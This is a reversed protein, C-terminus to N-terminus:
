EPIVGSTVITTSGLPQRRRGRAVWALAIVVGVAGIALGLFADWPVLSLEVRHTGATVPVLTGGLARLTSVGAGDVTARWGPWWAVDFWVYGDAPAEVTTAVRSSTRVDAPSPVASSLAVGVVLTAESPRIPSSSPLYAPVAEVPVWWPPRLAAEDRCFTAKDPDSYSLSPGPCLTAFVVTTDVGLLRRMAEGDADARGAIAVVDDTARLNLSSFMRLDAVGDAAPQDPMGVYYGPAGLTIMRYPDAAHAANMFPTGASSLDTAVRTGNPLPGFAVLPAAALLVMAPVLFPRVRAFREGPGSHAAAFLVVLIAVGAALEGALPWPSTLAEVALHHRAQAQELNGFTTFTDVLGDFTAPAFLVLGLTVAYAGVPVLVAVLSWWPRVGLKVPRGVAVGAIVGILVAAIMYARVPSRIGNLFPIAALWEPQFAEVVPIAILVVVAILLPRSRRLFAGGAALAVVPLGLFAAAELHAFVGDPYWVSYFNWFGEPIQVFASSFGPFLLDFPTAAAAFLDAASLSESRVSLTTLVATPVLQVAGVAAGLLGVGVARGLGRLVGDRSSAVLVVTLAIGTLLWTNPHGALAQVGFLIGSTVLGARSPRPRRVLPLLIWPLWAYAAVLNHWELKATIACGLVAVLAAVIAGPRSGRLRLALLGAGVGAFALHVVRTMDLAVLPNLQFLLWNPPYFAGIQGEAYLPFGLGLRENWLPLRGQSLAEHYFAALPFDIKPIDLNWLWEGPERFLRAAWAAAALSILALQVVAVLTAPVLRRRATTATAAAGSM